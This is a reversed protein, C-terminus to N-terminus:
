YIEMVLAGDQGGFDIIVAEFPEETTHFEVYDGSDLCLRLALPSGLEFREPTQGILLWVPIDAPGEEWSYVTGRLSFVAKEKTMIRNIDGFSLQFDYAGLGVFHIPDKRCIANLPVLITDDFTRM